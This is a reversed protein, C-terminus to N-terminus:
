VVLPTFAIDYFGYYIFLMPIVALGTASNGTTAFSGSLGTIIIYCILMGVSSTLLLTRRGLRDVKTAASVAVILDFLQLFGSILTQKTVSTM